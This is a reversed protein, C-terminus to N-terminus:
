EPGNSVTFGDALDFNEFLGLFVPFCILECTQRRNKRGGENPLFLSVLLEWTTAEPKM